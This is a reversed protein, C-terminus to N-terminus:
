GWCHFYLKFIMNTQKKTAM